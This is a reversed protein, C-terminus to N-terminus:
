QKVVLQQVQETATDLLLTYPGKPLGDLSLQGNIHTTEKV